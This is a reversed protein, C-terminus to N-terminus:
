FCIIRRSDTPRPSTPLAGNLNVVPQPLCKLSQNVRYCTAIRFGRQPPGTLAGPSQGLFNSSLQVTYGIASHRRQQLFSPVAQLRVPFGLFTQRVPVPVSLELMDIAM